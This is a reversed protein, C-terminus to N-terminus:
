RPSRRVNVVAAVILLPGAIAWGRIDRVHATLGSHMALGHLVLLGAVQTLELVALGAVLRKWGAAAFAAIWLALYFGIQFAPLFAVAGQPDDFPVGAAYTVARTYLPGLVWVISGGAIVASLAYRPATGRGHRWLAALCVVVAALLLQYFAHVLFLPSAVIADPLAVLLLRVIGLVIFLPLAAVGGVILRRWTTSYACVAALYVPVLPTSICEQTVIFAGRPTSLINAAAHASVGATGLTAAAARAIFGALALVFPSDLYLPSAAVFLLLFAATLGIFRRSLQPVQRATASPSPPLQQATASPSPPVQRATASPSPPLDALRMWAFAYGAIALMLVAPWIYLHLANFWEPAAAARGLSGIRLTNLGLILGVGGACGAARKKWTVPYALVTGLCLALADAGSCALTAEVPLAPAGFMGVAVAAQLGTLPLVAHAEIWSLRLLGFLGLSWAVGHLAFNLAATRGRATDTPV